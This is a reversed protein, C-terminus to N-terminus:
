CHRRMQEYTVCINERPGNYKTHKKEEEKQREWIRQMDREM